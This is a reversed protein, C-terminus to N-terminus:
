RAKRWNVDTAHREKIAPQDIGVDGAPGVEGPRARRPLCTAQKAATALM